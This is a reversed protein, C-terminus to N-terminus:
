RASVYVSTASEGPASNSIAESESSPAQVMEPLVTVNVPNSMQRTTAFTPVIADTSCSSETTAPVIVNPAYPPATGATMPTVLKVAVTVDFECFPPATNVEFASTQVSSAWFATDKTFAPV